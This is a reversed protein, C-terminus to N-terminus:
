EADSKNMSYTKKVLVLENWARVCHIIVPLELKESLAIQEKFVALQVEMSPGKLKDLGIEGLAICGTANLKESLGFLGGAEEIGLRLYQQHHPHKLSPGIKTYSISQSVINGENFSSRLFPNLILLSDLRSFKKLQFLEINMPRYTIVQEKGKKNKKWEYGWNTTFSKLQYYNLLDM